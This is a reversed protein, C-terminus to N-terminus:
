EVTRYYRKAGHRAAFERAREPTRSAVAVLESREVSILAPGGKRNAVDGCGIIGWKVIM